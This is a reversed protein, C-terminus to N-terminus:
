PEVETETTRVAAAVVEAVLWLLGDALAAVGAAWAAASWGDSLYEAVVLLAQGVLVLAIPWAPIGADKM